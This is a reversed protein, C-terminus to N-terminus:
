PRNLKEELEEAIYLLTQALRKSATKFLQMNQEEEAKQFLRATEKIYDIRNGM